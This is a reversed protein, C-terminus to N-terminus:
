PKEVRTSFQLNSTKSPSWSQTASSLSTIQRLPPPPPPLVYLLSVALLSLFFPHSKLFNKMSSFPFKSSPCLMTFAFPFSYFCLVLCLSPPS